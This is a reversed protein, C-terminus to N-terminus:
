SGWKKENRRWGDDEPRSLDAVAPPSFLFFGAPLISVAARFFHRPLSKRFPRVGNPFGNRLQPSSPHPRSVPPVGNTSSPLAPSSLFLHNAFSFPSSVLLRARGGATCISSPGVFFSLSRPSLSLSLPSFSSVFRSLVVMVSLKSSKVPPLPLSSM